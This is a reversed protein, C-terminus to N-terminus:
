LSIMKLVAGTKAKPLAKNYTCCYVLHQYKYIFVQVVNTDNNIHYLEYKSINGQIERCVQTWYLLLTDIQGNICAM